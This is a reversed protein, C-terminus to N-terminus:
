GCQNSVGCVQQLEEVADAVADHFLVDVSSQLKGLEVGQHVLLAISELVPLCVTILEDRNSGQGSKVRVIRKESKLSEKVIANLTKLAEEAGSVISVVGVIDDVNVFVQM